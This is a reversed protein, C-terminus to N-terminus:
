EVTDQANHVQGMSHGFEHALQLDSCDYNRGDEENTDIGDSVVAYGFAADNNAITKGGAGLLWAHGCNTQQPALFPRVLAVLDAGYTDRATRLPVLEAPVTLATCPSASCSVGTLAQLAATNATTDTYQVQVARVLCLRHDIGSNAYAQNTVDVLHHLRAEAQAVSGYRTILGTTYGLVVDVTTAGNTTSQNATPTGVTHPAIFYDNGLAATAHLSFVLMAANLLTSSLKM